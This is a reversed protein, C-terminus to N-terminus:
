YIQGTLILKRRLCGSFPCLAEAASPTIIIMILITTVIAIIIIKILVYNYNELRLKHPNM